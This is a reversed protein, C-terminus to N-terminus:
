KLISTNEDAFYTYIKKIGLRQLAILRHNGDVIEKDEKPNGYVTKIGKHTIIPEYCNIDITKMIKQVNRENITIMDIPDEFTDINFVKLDYFDYELIRSTIDGNEFDDPNYHKERVRELLEDSNIRKPEFYECRKTTKETM